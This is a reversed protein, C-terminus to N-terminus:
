LLRSKSFMCILLKDSVASFRLAATEGSLQEATMGAGAPVACRLSKLQEPGARLEMVGLGQPLLRGGETQMGASHVMRLHVVRLHVM